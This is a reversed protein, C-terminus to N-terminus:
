SRVSKKPRIARSTRKPKSSLTPLRRETKTSSWLSMMSDLTWQAANTSSTTRARDRAQTRADKASTQTGRVPTLLLVHFHNEPQVTVLRGRGAPSQWHNETQWPRNDQEVCNEASYKIQVSECHAAQSLTPPQPLSAWVCQRKKTSVKAARRTDTACAGFMKTEKKQQYRSIGLRAYLNQLNSACGPLEDPEAFVLV